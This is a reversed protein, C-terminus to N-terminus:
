MQELIGKLSRYPSDIILMNLIWDPVSGGPDVFGELIVHTMEKGKPIVSWAQSYNKIRVMGSTQPVLEPLPLATIKREGTLTDLAIRVDVCIDRDAVPWPLDYVLYYQARKNKEYGLIKIRTINKDWWSTNNVNELLSYVKEAPANIDVIGMFSKLRQGPEEKTYLKIGDKEKIFNWSQAPAPCSFARSLLFLLLLPLKYLRM